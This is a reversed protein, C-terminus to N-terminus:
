LKILRKVRCDFDEVNQCSRKSWLESWLLVPVSRVCSRLVSFLCLIGPCFLALLPLFTTFCTNYSAGAASRVLLDPTRTGEPAGYISMCWATYSCKYKCAFRPPLPEFARPDLRLGHARRLCFRWLIANKSLIYHGRM